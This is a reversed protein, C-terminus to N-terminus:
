QKKQVSATLDEALSALKKEGIGKVKVLDTVDSYAGHQSRYEIIAAATKAGIGNLSELQTQSATNIDVKEQAFVATSLSFALLIPLIIRKLKM